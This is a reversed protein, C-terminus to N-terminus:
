PIYQQGSGEKAKISFFTIKFRSIMANFVLDMKKGKLFKNGFDVDIFGVLCGRQSDHDWDM